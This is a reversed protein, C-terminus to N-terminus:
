GILGVPRIREALATIEPGFDEAMGREMASVSDYSAILSSLGRCRSVVARRNAIVTDREQASTCEYVRAHLTKGAVNAVAFAVFHRPRIPTM